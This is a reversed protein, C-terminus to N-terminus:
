ESGFIRPRVDYGCNTNVRKIIDSMLGSTEFEEIAANVLKLTTEWSPKKKSVAYYLHNYQIEPLVVEIGELIRIRESQTVMANVISAGIVAPDGIILNTRNSILKQTNMLDDVSESINFFGRDMLADFEPTNQYGRVVGIKENKLNLLNGKYRDAEGKRKMFVIPGGPLKQSLALHEVRNTGKYMDSPATPEIFYEPYLIDALGSEAMRVARAWPLFRVMIEYGQSALLAITLQQVWGQKCITEGIYPEWNLTAISIKQSAGKNFVYTHPATEEGSILFPRGRFEFEVRLRNNSDFAPSVNPLLAYLGLLLVLAYFRRFKYCRGAM